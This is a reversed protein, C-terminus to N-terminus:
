ALNVKIYSQREKGDRSINKWPILCVLNLEEITEISVKVGGRNVNFIPYIGSKRAARTVVANASSCSM